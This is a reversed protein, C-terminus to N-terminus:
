SDPKFDPIRQSVRTQVTFATPQNRPGALAHGDIVILVKPQEFDGGEGSVPTSGTVYFKLNTINIEPATMRIAGSENGNGYYITRAIYGGEGSMFEYSIVDNPRGESDPNDDLDENFM